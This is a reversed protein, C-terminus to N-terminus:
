SIAKEEKVAGKTGAENENSRTWTVSSRTSSRQLSRESQLEGAREDNSTNRCYWSSSYPSHSGLSSSLCLFCSSWIPVLFWLVGLFITLTGMEIEELPTVKAPKDGPLMYEKVRWADWGGPKAQLKPCVCIAYVLSHISLWKCLEFSM